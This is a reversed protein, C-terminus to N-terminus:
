KNKKKLMEILEKRDEKIDHKPDSQETKISKLKPVNHKITNKNELSSIFLM